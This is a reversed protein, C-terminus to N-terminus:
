DQKLKALYEEISFEAELRSITPPPDKRVRYMTRSAGNANRAALEVYAGCNVPLRQYLPRLTKTTKKKQHPVFSSSPFESTQNLNDKQVLTPTDDAGTVQQGVAQEVGAEEDGVPTAVSTTKRTGGKISSTADPVNKRGVGFTNDFDLKEELRLMHRVDPEAQVKASMRPSGYRDGLRTPGLINLKRPSRERSFMVRQNHKLRSENIKDIRYPFHKKEGLLNAERVGTIFLYPQEEESSSSSLLQQVQASPEAIFNVEKNVNQQKHQKMKKKAKKKTSVLAPRFMVEKPSWPQRLYRELTEGDGANDATKEEEGGFLGKEVRKVVSDAAEYPLVVEAEIPQQRGAHFRKINQQRFIPRLRVQSTNLTNNGSSCLTLRAGTLRTAPDTDSTDGEQHNKHGEEPDDNFLSLFVDSKSPAAASQEEGVLQPSGSKHGAVDTFGGAMTKSGRGNGNATKKHAAGGFGKGRGRSTIGLHDETGSLHEWKLSCGMHTIREDFRLREESHVPAHYDHSGRKPSLM